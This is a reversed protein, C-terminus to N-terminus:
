SDLNVMQKSEKQLIDQVIEEAHVISDEIMFRNTKLGGCVVGALYINERNTQQRSDYHPTLYQDDCNTIGLRQLLDYDPQYGIMALVFDNEITLEEGDQIIRILGEDIREVTANFYAEISGEAIRNEINPKIWYKVTEKIAADRVILSVDVDKHYLELAVQCASNGGGIVAVKQKLYPHPNKYYYSVKPLDNGAVQLTNAKSYFGTAVVIYKAKYSAKTSHCIFLDNKKEVSEVAEYLHIPLSWTEVVRRYYELAENRTPKEHLSMFPIGGIELRKSTSFFTMEDPFNYLSNVLVGKELVLCSLKSQKAEIATAIGMPGGGVIIIDYYNM